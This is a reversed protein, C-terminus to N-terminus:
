GFLGWIWNGAEWLLRVWLILFLIVFSGMFLMVFINWTENWFVKFKNM